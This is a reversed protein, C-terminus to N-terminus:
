ADALRKEHFRAHMVFLAAIAAISSVLLYASAIIVVQIWTVVVIDVAILGYIGAAPRFARETADRSRM